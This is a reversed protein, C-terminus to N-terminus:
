AALAAAPPNMVAQPETFLFHDHYYHMWLFSLIAIYYSRDFAANFDLRLVYHLIAFIVAAVVITGLTFGMLLMYYSRAKGPESVKEVVPMAHMQGKEERIRNIYWTLALYQFSHWTNMGQFATDLNGLAPVIFATAATIAIFLVKPVHLTHNRWERYSKIAFLVVATFFVATVLYFFIPQKLFDPIVAGLDNQGIFMDQSIILRYAAVPYLATLVVAYDIARAGLSLSTPKKKGYAEVVFIIQHLVHISAWFFFVTLLLELNFLALAIVVIPILISSKVIAPRKAVFDKDLLTRTFTAYMHPGGVAFAVLLNVANRTNDPNAHFQNFLLWTLYPIPVLIVSLTFFTLDWRRTRLWLNAQETSGTRSLTLTSAAM